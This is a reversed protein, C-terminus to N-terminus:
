KSWVFNFFIRTLATAASWKTEHLESSALSKRWKTDGNFFIRALSPSSIRQCWGGSSWLLCDSSVFSLVPGQSRELCCCALAPEDDRMRARCLQLERTTNTRGARTNTTGCARRDSLVPSSQSAQGMVWRCTCTM